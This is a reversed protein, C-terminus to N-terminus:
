WVKQVVSLLINEMETVTRLSETSGHIEIVYDVCVVPVRFAETLLTWLKSCEERSIASEHTEIVVRQVTGNELTIGRNNLGFFAKVSLWQIGKELADPPVKKVLEFVPNKIQTTVRGNEGDRLRLNGNQVILIGKLELEKTRRHLTRMPFGTKKHVDRKSIGPEKKVLSCIMTYQDTIPMGRKYTNNM